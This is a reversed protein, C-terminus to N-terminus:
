STEIEARDGERWQDVLNMMDEMGRESDDLLGDAIATAALRKRKNSAGRWDCDCVWAVGFGVAFSVVLYPYSVPCISWCGAM